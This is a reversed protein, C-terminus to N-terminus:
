YMTVPLSMQWGTQMKNSLHKTHSDGIWVPQSREDPGPDRDVAAEGGEYVDVVWVAFGQLHAEGGRGYM